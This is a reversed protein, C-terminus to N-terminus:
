RLNLLAPQDQVLAILVFVVIAAVILWIWPHARRQWLRM